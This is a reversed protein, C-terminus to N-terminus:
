GRCCRCVYIWVRVKGMGIGEDCALIYMYRVERRVIAALRTIDALAREVEVQEGREM